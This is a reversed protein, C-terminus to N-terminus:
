GVGVSVVLAIEGTIDTPHSFVVSPACSVSKILLFACKYTEPYNCKKMKIYTHTSSPTKAMEVKRKWFVLKKHVILAKGRM